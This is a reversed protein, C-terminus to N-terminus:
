VKNQAQRRTQSRVQSRGQLRARDDSSVLIQFYVQDWVQFSVQRLGHITVRDKVLVPKEVLQAFM